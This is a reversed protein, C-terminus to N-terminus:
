FISFLIPIYTRENPDTAMPPRMKNSVWSSNHVRIRPRSNNGCHMFADIQRFTCQRVIKPPTGTVTKYLLMQM